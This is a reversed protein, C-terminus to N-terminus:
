ALGRMRKAPMHSVRRVGQLRSLPPGPLPMKLVVSPPSEQVSMESLGPRGLPMLPRMPTATEGALGLRTQAMMSASSAPRKRESSPPSVQCHTLM